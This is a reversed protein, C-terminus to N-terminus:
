KARGSCAQLFKETSEKIREVEETNLDALLDPPIARMGHLAGVLSGVISANTDTDGGANVAEFVANFPNPDQSNLARRAFIAYSVGFSTYASFKGGGFLKAADEPQQKGLEGKRGRDIYKIINIVQDSIKEEHYPLKDELALALEGYYTLFEPVYIHSNRLVALHAVMCAHAVGAVIAPTALHTMRGYEVCKNIFAPFDEQTVSRWLGLPSIKMIVGSGEGTEEGSKTWDGDLSLRELSRRHARGWGIQGKSYAELHEEVIRKMDFLGDSKTLATMTALTLATDDSPSGKTLHGMRTNPNVSFPVFGEITGARTRIEDAAMGEVPFGLRDGLTVGFICGLFKDLNM